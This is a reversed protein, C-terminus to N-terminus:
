NPFTRFLQVGLGTGVLSWVAGTVCDGLILGLFFPLASRYLRIGGYRLLSAKFVWALFLDLWFLENAFTTNLVYAAPSLPFSTFRARLFTLLLTVGSGVAMGALAFPEPGKPNELWGELRWWPLKGMLIRYQNVNATAAGHTYYMQMDWVIASAVGVLAALGLCPVLPRLDAAGARKLGVMGQLLQPMPAARYDQNFWMLTAMRALDTPAVHRTGTMAPIIDQPSVWALLPSLVATEAELRSLALMLLLYIGLFAVPVWWSAGSAWVLACLALFGAAFGWVAGRASLAEGRDLGQPDGDFARNFYAQYYRWGTWVAALGVTLWAGWAQYGTFPFEASGDGYEAPGPDRWNMMTGFLNLLKKLAYFFWLSFLVDVNVLYGFGVGIPHVLVMVSGLGNWPYSVGDLGQKASNIPFSPLWPFLGALTNFSHLVLPVAFGAWMLPSRYLPADPRTMELPLAVVPFALYEQDTWRRRVVCALCFMTWLLLLFFVGWLLLTPAWAALVEPSFFSSRGEYFGKLVAPDKPALWTQPLHRHFPEWDNGGGAFQYVNGVFPAFFGFNGIGATATALSLMAYVAIMEPQSLGARPGLLRRVALNGLTLLFLLFAVGMFLTQITIETVETRMESHAIWGANVVILPLAVLLARGWRLTPAIPSPDPSPAADAPSDDKVMGKM